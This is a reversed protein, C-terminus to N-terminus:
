NMYTAGCNAPCKQKALERRRNAFRLSGQKRTPTRRPRVSVRLAGSALFPSSADAGSLAAALSLPRVFIEHSAASAPYGATLLRRSSTSEALSLSAGTTSQKFRSTLRSANGSGTLCFHGTFCGSPLKVFARIHYIRPQM